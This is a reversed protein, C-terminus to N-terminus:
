NNIDSLRGLLFCIIGFVAVGFLIALGNIEFDGFNFTFLSFVKMGTNFIWQGIEAFLSVDFKM